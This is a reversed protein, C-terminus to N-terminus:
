KGKRKAARLPNPRFKIICVTNNKINLVFDFFAGASPTFRRGPRKDAPIMERTEQPWLVVFVAMGWLSSIAMLTIFLQRLYVCPFFRVIKYQTFYLTNQGTQWAAKQFIVFVVKAFRNEQRKKRFHLSNVSKLNIKCLFFPLIPITVCVHLWSLFAAFVATLPPRQMFLFRNTRGAFPCRTVKERECHLRTRWVCNTYCFPDSHIQM